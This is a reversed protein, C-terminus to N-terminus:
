QPAHRMERPGDAWGVMRDVEVPGSTLEDSQCFSCRTCQSDLYDKTVPSRDEMEDNSM